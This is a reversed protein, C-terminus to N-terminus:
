RRIDGATKDVLSFAKRFLLCHSADVNEGLTISTQCEKAERELRQESRNTERQQVRAPIDIGGPIHWVNKPM